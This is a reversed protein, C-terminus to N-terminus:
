FFRRRRYYANKGAVSVSASVLPLNLGATGTGTYAFLGGTGTGTSQPQDEWGSPSTFATGNSYPGGTPYGLGGTGITGTGGGGLDPYTQTPYINNNSIPTVTITVSVTETITVPPAAPPCSAAPVSGSGGESGTGESGGASGSEVPYGGGLSGTGYAGGSNYSGSGGGSSGASGGTNTPYPPLAGSGGFQGGNSGGASGTGYAGNGYSSGGFGSGSEESGSGGGAGYTPIAGSGGSGIPGAGYSSQPSKSCPKKNKKTTGVQYSGGTTTTVNAYPGATPYSLGMTGTGTGTVGYLPAAASSGGITGMPPYAGGDVPSSTHKQDKGMLEVADVYKGGTM